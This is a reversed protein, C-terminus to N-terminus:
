MAWTLACEAPANSLTLLFYLRLQRELPIPVSVRQIHFDHLLRVTLMLAMFDTIPESCQPCRLAAEISANWTDDLADSDTEMGLYIALNLTNAVLSFPESHEMLADEPAISLDGKLLEQLFDVCRAILRPLNPEEAEEFAWDAFAELLYRRCRRKEEPPLAFVRRLAECRETYGAGNTLTQVLELTPDKNTSM